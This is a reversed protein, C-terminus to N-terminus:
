TLGEVRWHKRTERYAIFNRREQRENFRLQQSYHHIHTYLNISSVASAVERKRRITTTLTVCREPAIRVFFCFFLFCFVFFFVNHCTAHEEPETSLIQSIWSLLRFEQLQSPARPSTISSMGRLTEGCIYPFSWAVILKLIKVQKWHCRLRPMLTLTSYKFRRM